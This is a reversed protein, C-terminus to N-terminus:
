LLSQTTFRTCPAACTTVDADGDDLWQIVIIANGNLDVSVSGDGSPLAQAIATKWDTLETAAITGGSPTSGLAISFSGNKALTKNLRMRDIIDYALITAQSRYYATNNSKISASLLAAYGLLGLAMVVTTVLIEILSIGKQQRAVTGPRDFFHKAM